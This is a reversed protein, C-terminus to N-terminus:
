IKKIELTAEIFDEKLIINKLSVETFSKGQNEFIEVIANLSESLQEIQIDIYKDTVVSTITFLQEKSIEKNEYYIRVVNRLKGLNFMANYISDNKTLTDLSYNLFGKEELKSKISDLSERLSFETKHITQYKISNLLVSHVSDKGSIILTFEQGFVPRINWLFFAIYIYPIFKKM